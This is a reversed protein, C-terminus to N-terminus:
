PVAETFICLYRYLVFYAIVPRPGQNTWSVMGTPKDCRMGFVPKGPDKSPGFFSSASCGTDTTVNHKYANVLFTLPPLEDWLTAGPATYPPTDAAHSGTYTQQSAVGFFDALPQM